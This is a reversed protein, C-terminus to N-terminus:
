VKRRAPAKAWRVGDRLGGIGRDGLSRDDGCLLGLGWGGDWTATFACLLLDGVMGRSRDAFADEGGRQTRPLWGSVKGCASGGSSYKGPM